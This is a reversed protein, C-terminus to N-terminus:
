LSHLFGILNEDTGDISLKKRLRTRAVNISNISQHTIAAIDKTSLNLRLFACLKRENPTLDPFRSQLKEYFDQHTQIFRIEFDEWSKDQEIRQLQHIVNKLQNHEDKAELASDVAEVMKVMAENNKIICMANFTLEKNRQELDARLAENEKEAKLHRNQHNRLRILLVLLMIVLVLGMVSFILVTNTHRKRALQQDLLMLEIQQQKNDLEYLAQFEAIKRQSEANFLSDKILMFETQTTLAKEFKGSIKYLRSLQELSNMINRNLRGPKSYEIAKLFAKEAQLYDQNILYCNGLDFLTASVYSPMQNKTFYDLGLNLFTIAKGTQGMALYTSGINTQRLAVKDDNKMAKDIALAMEFYKLAEEYKGWAKYVLGLGSYRIAVKDDQGLRINIALAQQLYEAAKDFMGWAEYIRGITNLDSAIMSEDGAERDLALAEEMNRLAEKYFGQVTQVKGINALNTAIEKKDGLQRALILAQNYYDLAILHQEKIDYIYGINGLATIHEHTNAIGSLINIEASKQYHFLSREMNDLYYFADGLLANMASAAAPDEAQNVQSIADQLIIVAKEPENEVIATAQGLLQRYGETGDPAAVLEIAHLSNATLLLLLFFRGM